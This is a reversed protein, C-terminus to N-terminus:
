CPRIIRDKSINFLPSPFLEVFVWILSVLADWLADETFGTFCIFLKLIFVFCSIKTLRKSADLMM